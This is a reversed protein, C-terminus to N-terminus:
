GCVKERRMRCAGGRVVGWLLLLLAIVCSEGRFRSEIDLCKSIRMPKRQGKEDRRM